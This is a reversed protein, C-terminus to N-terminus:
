SAWGFRKLLAMLEDASSKDWHDELWKRAVQGSEVRIAYSCYDAWTTSERCLRLWHEAIEPCSALHDVSLDAVTMVMPEYTGAHSVRLADVVIDRQKQMPLSAWFEAHCVAFVEGATHWDSRVLGCFLQSLEACARDLDAPPSNLVIVTSIDDLRSHFDDADHRSLIDNISKGSM